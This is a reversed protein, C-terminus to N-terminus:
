RILASPKHLYRVFWISIIPLSCVFNVHFFIFEPSVLIM